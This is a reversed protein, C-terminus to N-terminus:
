DLIADGGRGGGEWGKEGGPGVASPGPGVPPSYSNLLHDFYEVTSCSTNITRAVVCASILSTTWRTVSAEM